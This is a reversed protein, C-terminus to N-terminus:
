APLAISAVSLTTLNHAGLQGFIAVGSGAGSDFSATVTIGTTSAPIVADAAFTLALGTPTAWNLQTVAKVSTGAGAFDLRVEIGKGSPISVPVDLAVKAVLRLKDGVAWASAPLTASNEHASAMNNGSLKMAKGVFRPDDVLTMPAAARDIYHATPHPNSFAVSVTATYPASTGTVGTITRTEAQVQGTSFVYTGPALPDTIQITTAGSSSGAFVGASGTSLWTDPRNPYNTGDSITSYFLPNNVLQASQIASTALYDVECETPALSPALSTRPNATLVQAVAQAMLMIAAASPHVADVNMGAAYEGSKPNVLLPNLDVIRFGRAAGWLRIWNNLDRVKGAGLIGHQNRPPITNIVFEIGAATVADAIAIINARTDAPPVSNAIDNTGGMFLCMRPSLAIVDAQVRALMQATTNGGIGKNVIGVRREVLASAMNPYTLGPTLTGATQSDGLAVAFAPTSTTMFKASANGETLVRISPSQTM